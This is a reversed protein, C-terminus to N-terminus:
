RRGRATRRGRDVGDRRREPLLEVIWAWMRRGDKVLFFCLFVILVAGALAGAVSSIGAMANGGLQKQLRSGADDLMRDVQAREM